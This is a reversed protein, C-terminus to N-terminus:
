KGGKAAAVALDAAEKMTTGVQFNLGSDKLIQRGEEVNTGELRLIIPIQVNLKKAANVVGQALVDVRLIGGFINIFIAKVNPDSLLIGFANEIQEQNAGGGVDLFNAASGGAYEIIDMTAMALGAGNVMCAINGDLKIYNLAYKSAEVELPDEEAMDRLEKLDKHRFMANDDFNIKADLALVKGDKTTILPNVELLSCDLEDYARTLDGGAAPM